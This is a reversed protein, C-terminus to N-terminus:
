CILISSSNCARDFTLLQVEVPDRLLPENTKFPQFLPEGLPVQEYRLALGSVDNVGSSERSRVFVEYDNVQEVVYNQNEVYVVNGNVDHM